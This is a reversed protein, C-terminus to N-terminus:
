SIACRTPELLGARAGDNCFEVDIYFSPTPGPKELLVYEEVFYQARNQRLEAPGRSIGANVDGTEGYIWGRPDVLRIRRDGNLVPLTDPADGAPNLGVFPLGPQNPVNGGGASDDLTVVVRSVHEVNSLLQAVVDSAEGDVGYARNARDILLLGVTAVDLFLTYDPDTIRQAYTAQAVATNIAEILTPLAGYQGEFTYGSSLSDIIQLLRADKNRARAANVAATANAIREPSSMETTNDFTLCGTIAEATVSDPDGCNVFVCPKWTSSDDPDVAAQDDEDWVTSGALVAEINLSRTFQFGLRSIPRAPFEPAVRSEATFESPIERIIDLPGCIAATLVEGAGHRQAREPDDAYRQACFEAQAAAILADNRPAGNDSTLPEPMGEMESFAPLSALIVDGQSRGKKAIDVARGLTAWDIEAGDPAVNTGAAAILTARPRAPTTGAPAQAAHPQTGRARVVAGASALAPVPQSPEPLAPTEEADLAELDAAVAAAEDIRRTIEEAIRSQEARILRLAERDAATTSVPRRAAFAEDLATFSGRLTEEDLTTLDEPIEPVASAETAADSTGDGAPTEGETETGEAAPQEGEGAPAAETEDDAGGSVGLVILRAHRYSLHKTIERM